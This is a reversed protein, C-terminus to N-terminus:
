KCPVDAPGWQPAISIYHLTQSFIQLNITWIESFDRKQNESFPEFTDLHPFELNMYIDKYQIKTQGFKSVPVNLIHFYLM